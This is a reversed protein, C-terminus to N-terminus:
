NLANALGEAEVPQGRLLAIDRRPATGFLRGYERSFQSPSEYGVAFAARSVDLREILMLRRAENLRLWKQYQLPSMGTLQRFHHHFTPASMQVRAALEDIRLAVTYNVKLWDIAKAIRYGQGDVATIQRLRAGQDTHLLRYHVERLMLPALVPIAEPEDLLALLRDVASELASSLTGIGVGTGAAQHRKAPLGSQNILEALMSVDLKLVLGVCPQEPSALMVESNAPLDLSTLLFRSPDYSYGEGGVWLRKEGRGVLILSPEIMCVAPPAPQDRRFLSLGPIATAFDGTVHVRPDINLALPSDHRLPAHIM